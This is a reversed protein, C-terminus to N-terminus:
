DNLNDKFIINRNSNSNSELGIDDIFEIPDEHTVLDDVFGNADRQLDDSSDQVPRTVGSYSLNDFPAEVQSFDDIDADYRYKDFADGHRITEGDHRRNYAGAKAARFSSAIFNAVTQRLNRLSGGGLSAFKANIANNGLDAKDAILSTVVMTILYSVVILVLFIAYIAFANGNAKQVLSFTIALATYAFMLIVSCKLFGKVPASTEGQQLVKIILVICLALYMLYVLWQVVNIVVFLCILVLDFVILNFWGRSEAIYSIVDLDCATYMNYDSIFATQVIDSLSMEGYNLSYPYLWDGFDSVEQTFAVLARLAIIKTMTDDSLRGIQDDVDFIFKRTHYNVYSILKNMKRKYRSNEPCKGTRDYYGQDQMTKFWLTKKMAATPQLLWSSLGLFDTAVYKDGFAKEMAKAYSNADDQMKNNTSDDADSDEPIKIGYKGPTLFASSNVYSHVLFNDKITGNAYTITSRPIGSIQELSNMRSIFSDVISYYPTYYDVNNTVTKYAKLYHLSTGESVKCEDEIKLTDFLISTNVKLADGEAFFGSESSLTEYNGGVLDTDDCNVQELFSKWNLSGARYLTLSGSTFDREGDSKVSNTKVNGISENEIQIALTKYSLTESVNNIVM